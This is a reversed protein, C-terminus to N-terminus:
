RTRFRSVTAWYLAAIGIKRDFWDALQMAEQSTSSCIPARGFSEVLAQVERRNNGLDITREAIWQKGCRIAWLQRKTHYVRRTFGNPRQSWGRPRHCGPVSGVGALLDEGAPLLGPAGPLYEDPLEAEEREILSGYLRPADPNLESM